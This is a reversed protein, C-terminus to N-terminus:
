FLLFKFQWSLVVSAMIIVFFFFFPRFRRPLLYPIIGKGDVDRCLFIALFSSFIFNFIHFLTEDVQIIVQHRFIWEEFYIYKYICVCM